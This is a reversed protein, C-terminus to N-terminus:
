EIEYIDLKLTVTYHFVLNELKTTRDTSLWFRISSIHNLLPIELNSGKENSHYVISGFPPCTIPVRDIITSTQFNQQNINDLNFGGSALDTNLFLTNYWQMNCPKTSTFTGNYQTGDILGLFIGSNIPNIYCTSDVTTFTLKNSTISYSVTYNTIVTNLYDKFAYVSYSGPPITITTLTAGDFYEFTDNIGPIVDDWERTVTMTYLSIKLFKTKNNTNVFLNPPLYFTPDSLSGINRNLTNFYLFKSGVLRKKHPIIKSGFEM